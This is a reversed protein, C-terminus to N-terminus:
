MIHNIRLEEINKEQEIDRVRAQMEGQLLSEADRHTIAHVIFEDKNAM